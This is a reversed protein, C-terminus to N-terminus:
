RYDCRQMDHLMLVVTVQRLFQHIRNTRVEIHMRHLYIFDGSEIGHELRHWNPTVAHSHTGIHRAHNGASIIHSKPTDHAKIYEAPKWGQPIHPLPKPGRDYYEKQKCRYQQLQQQVTNPSKSEPLLLSESTPLLTRTRRGMLRQTPSGIVSDCPTNRLDLLALCVDENTRQCRVILGKVTQVAKEALGNSQPHLPSSTIHQFKYKDAFQKFERSAFRPGNDSILIDMIGYRAVNAPIKDVVTSTLTDPLAALEIFNSYYDVMVLYHKDYLQFLDCGVKSWPLKPVPHVTMPERQARNRNELCAVCKSVVEEIQKNMGPWFVLDRARQKCKVMGMHTSHIIKLMECRMSKPVCIREGRFVIGHYTSLEDRFDWFQIAAPPVEGRTEPWGVQILKKVTQLEEDYMTAEAIEAHNSYALTDTSCVMLEDDMLPESM